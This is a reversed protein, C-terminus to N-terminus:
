RETVSFRTRRRRGVLYAIGGLAILVIGAGGALTANAGTVPLGGGAGGAAPGPTTVTPSPSPSSNGCSGGSEPAPVAALVLSGGVGGDDGGFVQVPHLDPADGAVKWGKPMCFRVLYNGAQVSHFLAKGANDTTAEGVVNRANNDEMLTAKVGPLGPNSDKHSGDATKYVTVLVDAKAGPVYTRARGVNDDSNAEGNDATFQWGAWAYGLHYARSNIVGSWILMTEHDPEIDQPLGSGLNKWDIGEQDGGTLRVGRAAVKGRNAIYVNIGVEEGVAYSSKQFTMSVRLDPVDASAAHAPRAVGLMAIAGAVALVASLRWRRRSGSSRDL